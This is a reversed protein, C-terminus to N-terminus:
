TSPFVNHWHLYLYIAMSWYLAYAHHEDGKELGSLGYTPISSLRHSHCMALLSSTLNQSRCKKLVALFANNNLLGFHETNVTGSYLKNHSWGFVYYCYYEIVTGYLFTHTHLYAHLYVCHKVTNPRLDFCNQRSQFRTLTPLNCSALTSSPRPRDNRSFAVSSSRRCEIQRAVQVNRQLSQLVVSDVFSIEVDGDTTLVYVIYM